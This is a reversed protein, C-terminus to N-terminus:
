ETQAAPWAPPPPCLPPLVLAPEPEEVPAYKYRPRGDEEWGDLVRVAVWLSVLGRGLDWPARGFYLLYQDCIPRLLSEPVTVCRWEHEYGELPEPRGAPERFALQYRLNKVGDPECSYSYEVRRGSVYPSQRGDVYASIGGLVFTAKTSESLSQIARRLALLDTFIM